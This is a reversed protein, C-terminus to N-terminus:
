FKIELNDFKWQPQSTRYGRLIGPQSRRRRYSYQGEPKVGYWSAPPLSYRLLLDRIVRPINLEKSIERLVGGYVLMDNYRKINGKAIDVPWERRIM